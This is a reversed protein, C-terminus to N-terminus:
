VEVAYEAVNPVDASVVDRYKKQALQQKLTSNEVELQGIRKSQKELRDLLDSFFISNEQKNTNKKSDKYQYDTNQSNSDIKIDSKETSKSKSEEKLMEGNGTLLWDPNIESFVSLIEVIQTGGFESELSKGKINAYSIGTKECFDVKTIGQNDIFQLIKKKIPSIKNM